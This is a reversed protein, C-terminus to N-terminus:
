TINKCLFFSVYWLRFNRSDIWSIIIHRDGQEMMYFKEELGSYFSICLPSFNNGCHLCVIANPLWNYSKHCMTSTSNVQNVLPCCAEVRDLGKDCVQCYCTTRTTERIKWYSLLFIVAVVYSVKKILLNIYKIRHTIRVKFHDRDM